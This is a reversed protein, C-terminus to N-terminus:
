ENGEDPEEGDEIKPKTISEDVETMIDSFKAYAQWFADSDIRHVGLATAWSRATGYAEVPARDADDVQEPTQTLLWLAIIVDKVCGPYTKTRKYQDWGDKGIRPYLIGMAQAAIVRAPTWPYLKIGNLVHKDSSVFSDKRPKSKM